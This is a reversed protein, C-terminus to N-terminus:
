KSDALSEDKKTDYLDSIENILEFEDTPFLQLAIGLILGVDIHQNAITPPVEVSDYHVATICLKMLNKIISALEYYDYVRIEAIYMGRKDEAPKLTNLFRGNLIGIKELKIIEDANM